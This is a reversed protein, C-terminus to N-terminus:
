VPRVEVVHGVLYPLQKNMKIKEQNEKLQEKLSKSEQSLRTIESKLIRIENDIARTRNAIEDPTATLVDDPVETSEWLMKDDLSPPKKETATAAM